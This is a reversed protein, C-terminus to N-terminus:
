QLDDCSIGHGFKDIMQILTNNNEVRLFVLGEICAPSIIFEKNREQKQVENHIYKVTIGFGFSFFVIYLSVTGVILGILINKLINM